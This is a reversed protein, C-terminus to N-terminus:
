PQRGSGGHRANRELWADFQQPTVLVEVAELKAALTSYVLGGRFQDPRPAVRIAVPGRPRGGGVLQIRNRLQEEEGATLLRSARLDYLLGYAWTDEAAQRDITGIIDELVNPETVTVTILRRGDDRQYTIPM